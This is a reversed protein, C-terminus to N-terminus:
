PNTTQNTHSPHHLDAIEVPNNKHWIYLIMAVITGLLVSGLLFWPGEPIGIVFILATGIAFVAGM